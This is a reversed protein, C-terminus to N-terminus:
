LRLFDLYSVIVIVCILFFFSVTSYRFRATYKQGMKSIFLARLLFYWYVSLSFFYNHGAM